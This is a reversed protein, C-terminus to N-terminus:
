QERATGRESQAHMGDPVCIPGGENFAGIPKQIKGRQMIVEIGTQANHEFPACHGQHPVGHQANDQQAAGHEAKTQKSKAALEFLDTTFDECKANQM